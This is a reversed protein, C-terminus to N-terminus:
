FKCDIDMLYSCQNVRGTVKSLQAHQLSAVNVKSVLNELLYLELVSVSGHKSQTKKFPSHDQSLKSQLCDYCTSRQQSAM